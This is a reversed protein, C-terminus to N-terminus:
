ISFLSSSIYGNASTTHSPGNRRKTPLRTSIPPGIKPVYLGHQICRLGMKPERQVVIENLAVQVWAPGGNAKNWWATWWDENADVDKPDFHSGSGDFISIEFHTKWSRVQAIRTVDLATHGRLRDCRLACGPRNNPSITNLVQTLIVMLEDVNM